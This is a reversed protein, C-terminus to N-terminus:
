LKVKAKLQAKEVYMRRDAIVFAEVLKGQSATSTGLAVQIPLDPYRQNYESIKLHIREVVKAAAAADTHPLLVAFEDGGIRALVDRSRFVEGLLASARRLVEDGVAHGQTDNVIKLDNLDGVVLSVPFEGSIELRSLEAEFFARNYIGTLADHMSQYRLKEELTRRQLIEQRAKKLNSRLYTALVDATMIASGLIAAMVLFDTWSADPAAKPIYLGAIAGFVLWAVAVVAMGGAILFDRRQLLLSAIMVIVPYAMISTDYIGQGTTALVTTSFLVTFIVLLGPVRLNGRSLLFLPLLLLLSGCLTVVVLVWDSRFLGTVIVLVYAVLITFIMNVLIRAMRRDEEIPFRTLFQDPNFKRIWEHAM